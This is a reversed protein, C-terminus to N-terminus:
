AGLELLAAGRLPLDLHTAAILMGGEARHSEILAGLRAVTAADLGNTPEDLLWLPRRGLLLRALALRKKQGASLMRAPLAARDALGVSELATVIDGGQTQAAFDLNERASLGPKTADAHSAWGIRTAHTERDAFIDQGNWTIIGADPRRLGALCRLLTSKGAGNPGRLLLAGGAALVLNVGDLVLRGGRLVAINDAILM